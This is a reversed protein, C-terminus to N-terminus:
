TTSTAVRQLTEWFSGTGEPTDFRIEITRNEGNEFPVVRVAFGDVSSPEGGPTGPYRREGKLVKGPYQPRTGAGETAAGLVFQVEAIEVTGPVTRGRRDLVRKTVTVTAEGSPRVRLETVRRSTANPGFVSRDLDSSLLIDDPASRWQGVFFAPFASPSPAQAHVPLSFMMLLTITLLRNM